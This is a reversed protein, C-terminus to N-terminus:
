MGVTCKKVVLTHFHPMAEKKFINRKDVDVLAWVVCMRGYWACMRAHVRVHTDCARAHVCAHACARARARVCTHACVRARARVYVRVCACGSRVHLVWSYM